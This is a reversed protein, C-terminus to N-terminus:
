CSYLRGVEAGDAFSVALSKCTAHVVAGFMAGTAYAVEVSKSGDVQVTAVPADLM